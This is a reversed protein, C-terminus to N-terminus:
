NFKSIIFEKLKKTNDAQKDGDNSILTLTPNINNEIFNNVEKLRKEDRNLYILYINYDSLSKLYELPKIICNTGLEGNEVQLTFPIILAYNEIKEKKAKNNTIRLMDKIKPIVEDEFHCFKSREQPSSDRKALLIDGIKSYRSKSLNKIITTKGSSAGGILIFINKM